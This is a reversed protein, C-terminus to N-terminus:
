ARKETSLIKEDASVSIAHRLKLARKSVTSWREQGIIELTVWRGPATTEIDVVSLGNSTCSQVNDGMGIGCLLDKCMNDYCILMIAAVIVITMTIIFNIILIKQMIIVNCVFELTAVIVDVLTM